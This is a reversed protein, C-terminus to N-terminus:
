PGGEGRGFMILARRYKKELEAYRIALEGREREAMEAREDTETDSQKKSQSEMPVPTTGQMEQTAAYNHPSKDSSSTLATADASDTHPPSSLSSTGDEPQSSVTVILPLSRSAEAADPVARTMQEDLKKMADTFRRHLNPLRGNVEMGLGGEDQVNWGFHFDAIPLNYAFIYRAAAVERARKMGGRSRGNATLSSGRLFIICSSVGNLREEKGRLGITTGLSNALRNLSPFPYREREPMRYAANARSVAVTVENIHEAHLIAQDGRYPKQCTYCKLRVDSCSHEMPPTTSVRVGGGGQPISFARAHGSEMEAMRTVCKCCYWHGCPFVYPQYNLEECVPCQAQAKLSEVVEKDEIESIRPYVLARGFRKRLFSHDAYTLQCRICTPLHGDNSLYCLRCVGNKVM